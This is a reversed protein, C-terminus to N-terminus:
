CPCCQKQEGLMLKKGDAVDAPTDGYRQAVVQDTIHLFTDEVREGTRASTEFFAMGFKSALQEGEETTVKRADTLDTKNGVLVRQVAADGHENLAQV